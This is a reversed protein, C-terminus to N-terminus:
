RTSRLVWGAGGPSLSLGRAGLANALATPGGPFKLLVDANLASVTGIDLDDIGPTDLLQTRIENWQSPSSFEATFRVPEGLGSSTSGWQPASTPAEVPAVAAADRSKVAKWRGELIGLSVVAALESAYAIDGDSMRYSRKLNIPGVADHGALTINLKKAATDQEAIALIVRESKYEGALIRQGNDDGALLMKITDPHIVSKLEDLKVPTLTHELDLGKWGALWQATDAKAEGTAATMLVPVLVIPAAQEEVFPIGRSQLESRVASAQFSFDLSALYQTSSNQESRVAVGSILNAAKVDAIRTLQKYATVPVLRKLLSRLAAEQGDALAREKAAVANKDSADVPYNAVTFAADANAAVAPASCPLCVLVALGAALAGSAVARGSRKARKDM